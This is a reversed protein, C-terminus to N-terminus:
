AKLADRHHLKCYQFTRNSEADFYTVLRLPVPCKEASKEKTFRITQDSIVKSTGTREENSTSPRGVPNPVKLEEVVEYVM